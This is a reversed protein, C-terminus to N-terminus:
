GLGARCIGRFLNRTQKEDLLLFVGWVRAEEIYDEVQNYCQRLTRNGSFFDCDNVAGERVEEETAVDVGLNLMDIHMDIYVETAYEECEYASWSRVEDEAAINSTENSCSGLLFVAALAPLIAIFKIRNFAFMKEGKNPRVLRGPRNGLSIAMLQSPMQNMMPQTLPASFTM